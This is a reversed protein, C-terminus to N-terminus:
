KCVFIWNRKARDSHFLVNNENCLKAVAEFDIMNGIENNAHMLSVLTKQDSSKISEELAKMDVQGNADLEAFVLEIHNSKVLEEATHLICKHEIPSTIIRTVGLDRVAATLATNNGETGGSNFCIELPSVNLLAALEKRGKEIAARAKRGISHTSSANGFNDTLFPMMSDLVQKDIATTSANDFYIAM